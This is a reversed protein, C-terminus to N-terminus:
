VFTNAKNIIKLNTVLFKLESEDLKTMTRTKDLMTESIETLKSLLMKKLHGLQSKADYKTELELLNDAVTDIEGHVSLHKIIFKTREFLDDM